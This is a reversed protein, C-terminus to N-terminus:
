QNTPCDITPAVVGADGSTGASPGGTGGSGLAYSVGGDQLIVGADPGCWVGVSPGGGGGGGAGGNGGSGGNGGRGGNGGLVDYAYTVGPVTAATFRAGRLGGAGGLGGASGPGGNGGSGGNGGGQTRLETADKVAVQSDILLLAISAGGGGGGEGGQGGCGGSGGGGSGGGAASPANEDDLICGGGSGGGGGGNGPQGLDGNAGRQNSRWTGAFLEGLGSGPRGPGGAGGDVGSAGELGNLGTCYCTRRAEDCPQTQIGADGGRGGPTMLWGTFGDRGNSDPAAGLRGSGGDPRFGDFCVVTGGAGGGGQEATGVGADGGNAGTAGQPGADGPSGAAGTAGLGAELVAHRLDVGSSGLVRMAISPDGPQAGNASRVYVYELVIGADRVNQVTFGVPGGDVRALNDARRTWRTTGPVYGGHLSAPVDLVLGAEDYFGGALYVRNPGGGDAERLLELARALTKLPAERSGRGPDDRGAAPDVFLGADAQGDVGDCNEDLFQDDPLDVDSTITCPGADEGADTGSDVGADPGADEGDEGSVCRGADKCREEAADFDYCGSATLLVSLTAGLTWIKRM